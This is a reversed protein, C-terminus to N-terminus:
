WPASGKKLDDFAVEVARTRGALTNAEAASAGGFKKRSPTPRPRWADGAAHGTAKFTVGLNELKGGGQEVAITVAQTAEVLGKGTATAYDNIARTVRDVDKAAVGFRLLAAQARQVDEAEVGFAKEMAEAQERLADTTAGAVLRLQATAREAEM